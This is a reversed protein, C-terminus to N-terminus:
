KLECEWRALAEDSWLVFYRKSSQRIGDWDWSIVGHKDLLSLTRRVWEIDAAKLKSYARLFTSRQPHTEKIHRVMDMENQNLVIRM